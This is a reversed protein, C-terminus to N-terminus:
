SSIQDIIGLEENVVRTLKEVGQSVEEEESADEQEEPTKHSDTEKVSHCKSVPLLPASFHRSNFYIYLLKHFREYALRSRVDSQIFAANSFSREGAGFSTPVKMLKLALKQINPVHHAWTTWWSVRDKVNVRQWIMEIAFSGGRKARFQCYESLIARQVENEPKLPATENDTTSVYQRRKEVREEFIRDDINKAIQM